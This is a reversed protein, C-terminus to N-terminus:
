SLKTDAGRYGLKRLMTCGNSIYQLWELQSVLNADTIEQVKNHAGLVEPKSTTAWKLPFYLTSYLWAKCWSSSM